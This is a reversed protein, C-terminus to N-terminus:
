IVSTTWTHQLIESLTIRKSVDTTLMRDLLDKAKESLEEEEELPITFTRMLIKQATAFPLYGTLMKYLCVGLAWVDVEPGVDKKGLLVEPSAYYLNGRIGGEADIDESNTNVSEPDFDFGEKYFTKKDFIQSMGFDLIKVDDEDNLCINPLQLDRHLIGVDNHLHHLGRSLQVFYKHAQKEPWQMRETTLSELPGKGCYELVLYLSRETEVVDYLQVVNPHRPRCSSIRKMINVERAVFSSMELRSIRNKNLQKIAVRSGTVKCTALYVIGYTGEGVSPETGYDVIYRNAIMRADVTLCMEVDRDQLLQKLKAHQKQLIGETTFRSVTKYYKEQVDKVMDSYEVIIDDEVHFDDYNILCHVRIDEDKADKFHSKLVGIIAAFVNKSQQVTKVRLGGVNVILTNHESNYRVRNYMNNLTPEPDQVAISNRQQEETSAMSYTSIFASPMPSIGEHDYTSVAQKTELKLGQRIKM